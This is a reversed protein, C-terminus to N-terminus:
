EQWIHRGERRVLKFAEWLKDVDVGYADQKVGVFARVFQDKTLRRWRALTTGPVSAYSVWFGEARAPLKGDPMMNMRVDAYRQYPKWRDINKIDADTWMAAHGHDIAWGKKDMDTVWNKPYRDNNNIIDDLFVMSKIDEQKMRGGPLPKEIFRQVTGEEGDHTYYTTAPVNHLGLVTSLRYAAVERNGDHFGEAASIAKWVGHTGDNFTLLKGMCVGGGLPQVEQVGTAISATLADVDTEPSAARRRGHKMQDHPHGGPTHELVAGLSEVIRGTEVNIPYGCVDKIRAQAAAVDEGVLAGKEDTMSQSLVLAQRARRLFDQKAEAVRGALDNGEWPQALKDIVAAQMPQTLAGGGAQWAGGYYGFLYGRYEYHYVTVLVRRMYDDLSLSLDGLLSQLRAPYGADRTTWRAQLSPFHAAVLHLCDDTWAKHLAWLADMAEDALATLRQEYWLRAAEGTM